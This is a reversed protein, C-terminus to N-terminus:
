NKGMSSAINYLDSVAPDSSLKLYIAEKEHITRYLLEFNLGVILVAQITLATDKELEEWVIAGIRVLSGESDVRKTVQWTGAHRPSPTWKKLREDGVVLLTPVNCAQMVQSM